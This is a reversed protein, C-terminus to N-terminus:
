FGAYIDTVAGTKKTGTDNLYVFRITVTGTLPM